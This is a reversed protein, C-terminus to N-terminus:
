KLTVKIPNMRKSYNSINTFGKDLDLLGGHFTLKDKITEKLQKVTGVLQKITGM